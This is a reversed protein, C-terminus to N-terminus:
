YKKEPAADKKAKMREKQSQLADDALHPKYGYPWQVADFKYGPQEHPYGGPPRPPLKM